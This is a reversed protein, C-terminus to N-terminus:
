HKYGVRHLEVTRDPTSWIGVMDM